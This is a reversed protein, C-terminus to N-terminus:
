VDLPPTPVTVANERIMFPSSGPTKGPRASVRSSMDSSSSSRRDRAAQILSAACAGGEKLHGFFRPARRWRVTPPARGDSANECQLNIWFPAIHAHPGPFHCHGYQQIDSSEHHPECGTRYTIFAESVTKGQAALNGIALRAFEGAPMSKFAPFVDAAQTVRRFDHDIM